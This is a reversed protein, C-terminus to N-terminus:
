ETMVWIGAYSALDVVITPFRNTWDLGSRTYITVVKDRKHLQLRYGDFKAEHLWSPGAPLKPRLTALQPLVFGPTLAAKRRRKIAAPGNKEITVKLGPPNDPREGTNCSPCPV